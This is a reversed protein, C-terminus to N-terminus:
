QIYGVSKLAKVQEEDPVVKTQGITGLMKRRQREMASVRPDAPDRIPNHEMPDISLDLLEFGERALAETHTWYHKPPINTVESSYLIYKVDSRIVSELEGGYLSQESYIWRNGPSPELLSIGERSQARSIGLLDMLTPFIDIISRPQWDEEGRQRHRMDVPLRVILPVHLVEDYMSHGHTYLGHDFFEEGHDSMVILLTRDFTNRVKLENILRELERNVHMFENCYVSRLESVFFPRHAEPLEYYGNLIPERELTLDPIISVMDQEAHKYPLHPEMFHLYQFVPERSDQLFRIAQDIVFRADGNDRKISKSFDRDGWRFLLPNTQISVCRYGVNALVDQIQVLNRAPFPNGYDVGHMHPLMGTFLSLVSPCTWTSTTRVDHFKMAGDAITQITGLRETSDFVQDYRLADVVVLIIDPLSAKAHGRPVLFTAAYLIVMGLICSGTVIGVGLVGPKEEYRVSILTFLIWAILVLTVIGTNLKQVDLTLSQTLCILPITFALVAGYFVPLLANRLLTVTCKSRIRFYLYKVILYAVLVLIPGYIMDVNAVLNMRVKLALMHFLELKYLRVLAAWDFTPYDLIMFLCLNYM